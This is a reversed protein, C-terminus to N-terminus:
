SCVLWANIKIYKTMMEWLFPSDDHSEGYRLKVSDGWEILERQFYVQHHFAHLTTFINATTVILVTIHVIYYSYLRIMVCVCLCVSVCVCVYVCVYASVCACMCVCVSYFTAHTCECICARAHM